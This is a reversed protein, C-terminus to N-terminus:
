LGIDIGILSDMETATAGIEGHSLADRVFDDLNGDGIIRLNDARFRALRVRAWPTALGLTLLIALANSAYIGLMSWYGLTCRFRYPGLRAQNYLMNTMRSQLFSWVGLYFPTACAYVFAISLLGPKGKPLEITAHTGNVAYGLVGILFATLVGWLMALAFAKLYIGYYHSMEGRFAFSKGGFHHNEVMWRQQNGKIWPYIAAMGALGLFTGGGPHGGLAALFTIVLPLGMLFYVGLYWKYAGGYDASFFFRLGRWSSYRARFMLSKVVMWPMFAAVLLAAVIQVRPSIRGAAAYFGFLIATLIRGKLIPVPEALYDFPTDGLRTNAYMYRRTRVTAWASYIGLTVLSLAVNVIWIRFYEGANGHFTLRHGRPEDAAATPATIPPLDIDPLYVGSAMTEDHM